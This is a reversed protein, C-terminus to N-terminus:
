KASAELKAREKGRICGHARVRLSGALASARGDSIRRVELRTTARSRFRLGNDCWGRFPDTGIFVGRSRHKLVDRFKGRRGERNLRLASCVAEGCNRPKLRYTRRVRMGSQEGFPAGGSTVRLRVLYRGGVRPERTQFERTAGAALGNPNEAVLRYQYTRGWTLDSVPAAVAVDATGAGASQVPTTQTFPPTRGYRFYYTTEAGNPNVTGHLMATHLTIGTAAGTEASPPGSPGPAASVQAVGLVIIGGAALPAAVRRILRRRAMGAPKSRM